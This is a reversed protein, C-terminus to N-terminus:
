LYLYVSSLHLTKSFIRHGQYIDLNEKGIKVFSKYYVKIYKLLELIYTQNSIM